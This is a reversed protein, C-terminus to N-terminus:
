GMLSLLEQYIRVMATTDLSCYQQLDSMIKYKRQLNEAQVMELWQSGIQSGNTVALESYSLDPVLVPLVNKLSFSARFRKDVYGGKSFVSMLDIIRDNVALLETSLSPVNEALMKIIKKEFPAYWVLVSGADAISNLLNEAFDQSVDVLRNSIYDGRVLTGDTKMVASSFQIPHDQFPKSGDLPIASSFTEFDFFSIPKTTDITNLFEQIQVLNIVPGDSRFAEVIPKQSKTVRKDSPDLQSISTIGQELYEDFKRKQRSIYPLLQIPDEPLDKWCTSIHPCASDTSKHNCQNFVVVDPATKQNLTRHVKSIKEVVSDLEDLVQHTVDEVILFESPNIDGNRVYNPNVYIMNTQQINFGASRFVHLQFALDTIHQDKVSTTSKVENLAFPSGYVSKYRARLFERHEPNVASMPIKSVIDARSYNAISQASPQLIAKAGERIAQYTQQLGEYGFEEVSIAGPFLEGAYSEVRYGDHNRFHSLVPSQLSEDLQRDREVNALQNLFPLRECRDHQMFETKSVSVRRAM